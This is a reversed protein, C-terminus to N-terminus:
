DSQHCTTLLTRSQGLMLTDGRGPRLPLSKLFEVAEDRTFNGLTTGLFLLHLPPWSISGVAVDATTSGKRLLGGENIYKIGDEFTGWLAAAEM